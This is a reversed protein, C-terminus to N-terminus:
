ASKKLAKKLKKLKGEQKSVKVNRAKIEKKISKVKKSSKSM